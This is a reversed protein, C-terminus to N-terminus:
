REKLTRRGQVTEKKGKYSEVTLICPTVMSSTLRRLGAAVDRDSKEFCTRNWFFRVLCPIPLGQLRLLYSSIFGAFMSHFKPSQHNDSKTNTTAYRMRREIVAINSSRITELLGKDACRLQYACGEAKRNLVWYVM